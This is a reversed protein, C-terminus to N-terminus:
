ARVPQHHRHRDERRALGAQPSSRTSSRGRLGLADRGRRLRGGRQPTGARGGIEAALAELKRQDRSFSVLVEHGAKAFLRAANGGIAVRASSESACRESGWRRSSSSRGGQARQVAAPRHHPPRRAGRLAKWLGGEIFNAGRERLADEIHWPMIQNSRRTPRLAGRRQRLRDGHPRRDLYSGDSLPSTSSRASATACRLPRSRPRTSARSRRRSTTTIASAPVDAVARRLGRDRRLRRSRPRGARRTACCRPPTRRRESVGLSLVDAASYRSPDRPDSM